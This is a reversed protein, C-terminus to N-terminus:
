LQTAAHIQAWTDHWPEGASPIPADGSHVRTWSGEIFAAFHRHGLENGSTETASANPSAVSNTALHVVIKRNGYTAKRNLWGSALSQLIPEEGKKGQVLNGLTIMVQYKSWKFQYADL